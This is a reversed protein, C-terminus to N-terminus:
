RTKVVNPTFARTEMALIHGCLGLWRVRLVALEDKVSPEDNLPAKAM